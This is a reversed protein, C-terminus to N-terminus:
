LVVKEKDWIHSRLVSKVIIQKGNHGSNTGRNNNTLVPSVSEQRSSSISANEEEEQSHNSVSSFGTTRCLVAENQHSCTGPGSASLIFYFCVTLRITIFEKLFYCENRITYM